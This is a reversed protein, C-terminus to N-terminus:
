QKCGASSNQGRFHLIQDVTQSASNSNVSLIFYKELYILTKFPCDRRLLQLQHQSHARYYRHNRHSKWPSSPTLSTSCIKFSSNRKDMAKDPSLHSTLISFWLLSAWINLANIHFCHNINIEDLSCSRPPFLCSGWETRWVRLPRCLFAGLVTVAGVSCSESRWWVLRTSCSVLGGGHCLFQFINAESTSVRDHRPLRYCALLKWLKSIVWIRYGIHAWAPTYLHSLTKPFSLTLPLNPLHLIFTNKSKSQVPPPPVKWLVLM